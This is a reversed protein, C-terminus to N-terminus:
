FEIIEYAAEVEAIKEEIKTDFEKTIKGVYYPEIVSHCKENSLNIRICDSGIIVNNADYWDIRYDWGIFKDFSSNKGYYDWTGADEDYKALALWTVQYKRGHEDYSFTDLIEADSQSGLHEKYGVAADDSVYTKFTAYYCNPDGGTGVSQKSWVSNEPCMVRIEEKRYDVLAGEPLGGFDYKKLLHESVAAAIQKDTYANATAVSETAVKGIKDEVDKAANAKTALEAEVGSIDTEAIVANGDKDVWGIAPSEGEGSLFLVDFSDVRGADIAAQLNKRSGYAHKAKKPM